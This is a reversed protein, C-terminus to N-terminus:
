KVYGYEAFIEPGRKRTFEIFKKLLEPHKSYNLAIVSVNIEHEYEYPTKVVDLYDRFTHAVGNWIIVADVSKTKLLNGLNSHGKTLRNAVNKMVADEIGKKELLQFVLEGSTSYQPNSLAIKLGPKTFDDIRQISKPNGKQVAIVPAVFGVYVHDSYSGAKRVYDLYPDHSIFIDGMQKAKVHPLLDESGGTSFTANIGTQNKFEAILQETPPIFSNGVLIVLEESNGKSGKKEGCGVLCVAIAILMIWRYINLLM